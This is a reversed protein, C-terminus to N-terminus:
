KIIPSLTSGIVPACGPVELPIPQLTANPELFVPVFGAFQIKSSVHLSVHLDVQLDNWDGVRYFACGIVFFM